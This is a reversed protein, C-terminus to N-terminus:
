VSSRRFSVARASALRGRDRPLIVFVGQNATKIGGLTSGSDRAFQEAAARANATAEGIMAPKLENLRTFIFTPGGSGYEGGQSLLVVGASGARVHQSASRVVEPKNLRVM